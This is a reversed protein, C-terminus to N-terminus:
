KRNSQQNRENQTNQKRENQNRENQNNQNRENQKNNQMTCVEKRLSSRSYKQWHLCLIYM